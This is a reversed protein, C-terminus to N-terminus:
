VLDTAASETDKKTSTTANNEVKKNTTVKTQTEVKIAANENMFVCFNGNSLIYVDKTTDFKDMVSNPLSKFEEISAFIRVDPFKEEITNEKNVTTGCMKIFTDFPIKSSKNENLDYTAEKILNVKM